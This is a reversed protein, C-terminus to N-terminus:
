EWVKRVVITEAEVRRSGRAPPGISGPTYRLVTWAKGPTVKTVYGVITPRGSASAAPIFCSWRAPAGGVPPLTGTLAECVSGDALQMVWPEPTAPPPPVQAPLPKALKLVFGGKGLAPQAGCVLEGRNPPAEFCPDHIANGVMCRWAGPRPAAISGTWCSGVQATGSPLPPMYFIVATAEVAPPLAAAVAAPAAGLLLALAFITPRITTQARFM